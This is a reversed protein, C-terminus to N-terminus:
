VWEYTRFGSDLIFKNKEKWTKPDNADKVLKNSPILNIKGGIHQNGLIWTHKGVLTGPYATM